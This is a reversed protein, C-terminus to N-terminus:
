RWRRLSFAALGFYFLQVCQFGCRVWDMQTSKKSGRLLDIDAIIFNAINRQWELHIRFCWLFYIRNRYKTTAALTEGTTQSKIKFRKEMTTLTIVIYMSSIGQVTGLLGYVLTFWKINAFKQLWIPHWCSIGCRNQSMNACKYM